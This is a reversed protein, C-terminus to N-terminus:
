NKVIKFSVMRNDKQCVVFYLATPFSSIDIINIGPRILYTEITVGLENIINYFINNELTNNIYLDQNFTWVDTHGLDTPPGFYPELGAKLCFATMYSVVNDLIHGTLIIDGDLQVNINVGYEKAKELDVHFVGNNYFTEDIQGNPLLRVIAFDYPDPNYGTGSYGFLIIKNDEQIFVDKFYLNENDSSVVSVGNLGFTPLTLGNRDYAAIYDKGVGIISQDSLLGIAELKIYENIYTLVKGNLGFSIDPEGNSLCKALAFQTDTYGGLISSGDPLVILQTAYIEAVNLNLFTIGDVGFTKDLQGNSKLQGTYLQLSDCDEGFCSNGGILLKNSQLVVIDAVTTHHCNGIEPYARGNTGFLNELSGENKLKIVVAGVRSGNDIDYSSGALFINGDTDFDIAVLSERSGNDPTPLYVIGNVGFDPDPEGSESLRIILHQADDQQGLLIIKGDPQIKSDTCFIDGEAFKFYFSGENGFANNLIPTQGMCVFTSFNAFILLIVRTTIILNQFKGAKM